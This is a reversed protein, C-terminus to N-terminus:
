HLLNLEIKYIISCQKYTIKFIIYYKRDWSRKIKVIKRNSYSRKIKLIYSIYLYLLDKKKIKCIDKSVRSIEKSDEAFPNIEILLADKKVFLAYMKELIEATYEAHEEM